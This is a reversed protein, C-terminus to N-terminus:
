PSRWLASLKVPLLRTSFESREKLQSNPRVKHFVGDLHNHLRQDVVDISNVNALEIPIAGCKDLNSDGRFVHALYDTALTSRHARQPRQRMGHTQLSFM